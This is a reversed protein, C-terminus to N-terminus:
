QRPPAYATLPMEARPSEVPRRSTVDAGRPRTTLCREPVLVTPPTVVALLARAFSPAVALLQRDLHEVIADEDLHIRAVGVRELPPM